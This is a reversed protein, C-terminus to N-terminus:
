FNPRNAAGILGFGAVGVTPGPRPGVVPLGFVTLTRGAFSAVTGGAQEGLPVLIKVDDPSQRGAIGALRDDAVTAGGGSLASLDFGDEAQVAVAGGLWGALAFLVSYAHRNM